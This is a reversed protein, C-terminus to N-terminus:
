AVHVDEWVGHYLDGGWALTAVARREHLDGALLRLVQWQVWSGSRSTDIAPGHHLERSLTAQAPQGDVTFPTEWDTLTWPMERVGHNGSVLWAGHTVRDKLTVQNLVLCHGHANCFRGFRLQKLGVARPTARMRVRDAYGWGTSTRTGTASEATQTMQLGAAEVWWALHRHPFAAREGWASTGPAMLWQGQAGTRDRWRFLRGGGPAPSESVNKLPSFLRGGAVPYHELAHWFWGINNKFGLGVSYLVTLAGHSDLMDLYRKHLAM